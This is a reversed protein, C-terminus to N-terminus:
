VHVFKPMPRVMYLYCCCCAFYVCLIPARTCVLTSCKCLRLCNPAIPAVTCYFASTLCSVLTAVSQSADIMCLGHVLVQGITCCFFESRSSVYPSFSNRATEGRFGDTQRDPAQCQQERQSFMCVLIFNMFIIACRLAPEVGLCMFVLDLWLRVTCKVDPRLPLTTMRMVLARLPPLPPPLLLAQVRPVM